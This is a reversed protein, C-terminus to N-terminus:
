YCGQDRGMLHRRRGGGATPVLIDGSMALQGQCPVPHTSNGGHGRPSPLLFKSFFTVQELSCTGDLGQFYHYSVELTPLWSSKM